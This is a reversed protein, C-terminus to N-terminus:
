FRHRCYQLITRVIKDKKTRILAFWGMNMYLSISTDSLKPQRRNRQSLVSPKFFMFQTINSPTNDFMLGYQQLCPMFVKTRSASGCATSTEKVASLNLTAKLSPRESKTGSEQYGRKCCAMGASRLLQCSNPSPYAISHGSRSSCMPISPNSAPRRLPSLLRENSRQSSFREGGPHNM